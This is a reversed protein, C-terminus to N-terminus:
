RWLLLIQNRCVRSNSTGFRGNIRGVLENVLAQLNQYKEVDERTPVAVQIFVVSGVREPHEELFLEFARLKEPLGKVYDMRDVGVMIKKGEFEEELEAIRRQVSETRLTDYFRDPDIGIPFAAVSVSRTKFSVTRTTTQLGSNTLLANSNSRSWDIGLSM